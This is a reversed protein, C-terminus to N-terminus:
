GGGIEALTGLPLRLVTAAVAARSCALLMAETGGELDTIKKNEPWLYQKMM